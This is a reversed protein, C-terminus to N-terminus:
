KKNCIYNELSDILVQIEDCANRKIIPTAKQIIWSKFSEQYFKTPDNINMSTNDVFKKMGQTM